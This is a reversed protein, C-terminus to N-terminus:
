PKFMEKQESYSCVLCLQELWGATRVLTKDSEGCNQCACEPQMTEYDPHVMYVYLRHDPCYFVLRGLEDHSVLELLKHHGCHVCQIM